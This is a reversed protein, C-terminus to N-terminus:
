NLDNLLKKLETIIGNHDVSFIILSDNLYSTVYSEENYEDYTMEINGFIDTNFLINKNDNIISIIKIEEIKMENNLLVDINDKNLIVYFIKDTLNLDKWKIM